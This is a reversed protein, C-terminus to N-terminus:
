GSLGLQTLIGTPPQGTQSDWGLASWYAPVLEDLNVSRGKNAGQNQPPLGLARLNVAHRLSIGERANFLQRLSQINQGIQMYEDPTKRWGTAANLWEFFPLRHVGAFAGFLCLGAGNALAMFQSCAAAKRAQIAPNQYKRAKPYLLLDPRPLGSVRRWLQFMEYYLQAGNTHRGPAAEVAAHLAFGPDNRSDHMALEQGGAHVAYQEIGDGARREAIRQAAARSGDALLDGIGKRAIMMELLREAALPDGWRLELGGTDASTLLGREYCEFAFAVTAGASISDMGARNLLENMRHISELDSNLLLGGLALTTEYEPKHVDPGNHDEVLGGCAIPCSRCHYKAKERATIFDPNTHSSVPPPYDHHSGRWNQIPADGMEVSTQNMGVTGWRSLIMKYLMGDQRLALPSVRLLVGLHAMWRGPLLPLKIRAIRNFRSGLEKVAKPNAVRVPRSGRVAVAKLHKAGMVAGLGSRAALRGGDNTVGSILSLREGAPGICAVSLPRGPHADKICNETEITDKGWLGSADCLEAQGNDLYLYVPTSSAGTFFIGDYGSQKIAQSLTGGCNAEGWTGTLPSKAALIWRGTSLCGTGTLLGSVFALVNDPGLPNAGAPIERYLLYAALGMGSLLKEYVIDPITEERALGTTLNVWLVKGMVAPIM